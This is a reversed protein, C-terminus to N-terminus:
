HTWSHATDRARPKHVTDPAGHHLTSPRVPPRRRRVHLSGPWGSGNQAASECRKALKAQLRAEAKEAESVAKSVTGAVSDEEDRAMRGVVAGTELDEFGGDDEGEEEDGDAAARPM